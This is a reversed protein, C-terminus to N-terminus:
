PASCQKVTEPDGLLMKKGEVIAVYDNLFNRLREEFIGSHGLIVDLSAYAVIFPSYPQRGRATPTLQVGAITPIDALDAHLIECRKALYDKPDFTSPTSVIAIEHTRQPEYEGLATTWLEKQDRRFPPGILGDVWRGLPFALKRALDNEASLVLLLPTQLRPYQLQANLQDIRHYQLAEFAPNVLVTLDGFGQLPETLTTKAASSGASFRTAEILEKELTGAVVKFLVQGGFSHGLSVLGMFPANKSRQRAASRERYIRNLRVLFERLDGDGVREAAAKRDWFTAYDLPMPLALGRWGVYIGIVTIDPNDTLIKRSDRYLPEGLKARTTELSRALDRLNANDPAANHHWGHIFLTVVTNTRRSEREIEELAKEAIARDWLWGFDDLQLVYTWEGKLPGQAIDFQKHGFGCATLCCVLALLPLGALGSRSAIMAGSNNGL